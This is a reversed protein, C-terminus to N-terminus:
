WGSCVNDDESLSSSDTSLIASENDAIAKLMLAGETQFGNECL